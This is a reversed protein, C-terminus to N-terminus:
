FLNKLFLKAILVEIIANFEYLKHARLQFNYYFFLNVITHREHICSPTADFLSQM